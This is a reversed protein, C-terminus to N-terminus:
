LRIQLVVRFAFQAFIQEANSGVRQIRSQTAVPTNHASRIFVLIAFDVGVIKELGSIDYPEPSHKECTDSRADQYWSLVLASGMSAIKM